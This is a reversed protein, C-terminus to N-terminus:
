HGLIQRKSRYQLVANGYTQGALISLSAGKALSVRHKMIYLRTLCERRQLSQGLSFGGKLNVITGKRLVGSDTKFVAIINLFGPPQHEPLSLVAIKDIPSLHHNILENGRCAGLPSLCRRKHQKQWMAILALCRIM